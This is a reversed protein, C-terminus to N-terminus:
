RLGEDSWNFSTGVSPVAINGDNLWVRVEDTFSNIWLFDARGDGKVDVYCHNARDYGISVKARDYGISVKAQGVSKWNGIRQNFKHQPGQALRGDRQHLQYLRLYNNKYVETAKTKTDVHLIDCKGDGDMDLYNASDADCLLNNTYTYIKGTTDMYLSGSRGDGHIDVPIPGEIDGKFVGLDMDALREAVM